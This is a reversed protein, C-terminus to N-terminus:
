SREDLQRSIIASFEEAFNELRAGVKSRDAAFKNYFITAPIAALLGLATAFLAEALAPRSSRSTPTRRIPSPRSPIDHHGVGHRVARRVPAASGVTALFLLRSSSGRSRRRSRSTWSRRSASRFARSGPGHRARRAASGSGCPPWSSPRWARRQAASRADHLPRRAVPGVLLDARVHRSSKVARRYVFFKEFIIAWCWVSALRTGADRAPRRLQAQWFLHWLSIQDAAAGRETGAEVEM